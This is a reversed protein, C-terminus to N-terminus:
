KKSGYRARIMEDEEVRRMNKEANLKATLNDFERRTALKDPLGLWFFEAAVRNWFEWDQSYRYTEDFRGVAAFVDRHILVTTGNIACHQALIVQSERLERFIVTAVHAAGHANDTKLNYGSYCAKAHANLCAALQFEIKNPEFSDDCPLWAFWETQMAEIGTNLAASIGRNEPHRIIEFREDSLYEDKSAYGCDAWTIPKSSGDDVVIVECPVTQALASRIAALLFAPDPNYATIVISAVPNHPEGVDDLDRIPGDVVACTKFRAADRLCEAPPHWRSYEFSSNRASFDDNVIVEGVHGIVLGTDVHPKVDAAIDARVCFSLDESNGMEPLPTWWQAWGPDGAGYYDRVREFVERKVLLFAGGTADVQVLQDKPYGWMWGLTGPAYGWSPHYYRALVPKYPHRRDFCLGGVFPRDWSLLRKLAHSPYVMDDDIWLLHTVEPAALAEATLLNRATVVDHGVIDIHHWGIGSRDLFRFSRFNLPHVTRAIPMCLAVCPRPTEM